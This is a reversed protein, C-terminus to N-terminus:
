EEPPPPQPVPEPNFTEKIWEESMGRRRADAIAHRKGLVEAAKYGEAAPLTVRVELLVHDPYEPHPSVKIERDNLADAPAHIVRKRVTLRKAQMHPPVLESPHCEFVKCLVELKGRKPLSRGNRYQWLDQVTVAHQEKGTLVWDTTLKQIDTPTLQRRELELNIRAICAAAAKQYESRSIAM